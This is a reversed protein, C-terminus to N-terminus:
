IGEGAWALREILAQMQAELEAKEARLRDVEAISASGTQAATQLQAVLQRSIEREDSLTSELELVRAQFARGQELEALLASILDKAMLM